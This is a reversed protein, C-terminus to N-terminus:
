NPGAAPAPRGPEDPQQDLGHSRLFKELRLNVLDPLEIPATHSGGPILCLESGPIKRHMAESLWAPTFRDREGAFILTPVAIGGLIPEASHSDANLLLRAFLGLDMRAMHEFYPFMDARKILRPNMETLCALRYALETPVLKQWTQKFHANGATFLKYIYPFVGDKFLRNDRFTDLPHAYSGCVPVLARVREPFLRYLELIVQVGMSHGIQVAQDLGVHDMVTVLDRCLHSLTLAEPDAPAGSRGHGRYNWRVILYEDRFADVLYRWVYQDCGIGDSLLLAPGHGVVNYYIRTGDYSTITNEKM